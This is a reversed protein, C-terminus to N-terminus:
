RERRVRRPRAASASRARGRSPPEVDAGVDGVDDKEVVAGHGVGVAGGQAGAVHVVEGRGRPDGVRDGAHHGGHPFLVVRGPCVVRQPPPTSSAPPPASRGERRAGDRRAAAMGTLGTGVGCVAATRPAAARRRATWLWGQAVGEGTGGRQGRGRGWRNRCTLSVPRWRCSLLCRPGCSVSPGAAGGAAPTNPTCANGGLRNRLSEM